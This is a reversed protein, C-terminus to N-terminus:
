EEEESPVSAPRFSGFDIGHQDCLRYLKRREIGLQAAVARMRGSTRVLTDIIQERTPEARPDAPSPPQAEQVGPSRLSKRHARIHEPLLQSGLPGAPSAAVMARVIGRLDRLNLPWGYLVLCEATGPEWARGAAGAEALFRDAWLLIDERRERLPPLELPANSARLRALLDRRFAGRQCAAELDVNTAAVIRADSHRVEATLGVPRYSGDELFRLFDGQLEYPLEGIEDLFLVGESAVEVLGAKSAIAGSFAGRLHGFLDSRMLERTLEACNQPVFTGTGGITRSVREKGTGTEGLVLVHGTAAALQRVRARVETAIPSVGPFMEPEDDDPPPPGGRFVLISDGLRIVAGDALTVAGHPTLPVGDVYGGNRSGLDVLRWGLAERTIQAHRRSMRPDDFTIEAAGAASTTRGLTAGEGIAVVGLEPFVLRLHALPKGRRQSALASDDQRETHESPPM